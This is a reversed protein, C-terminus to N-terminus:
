PFGQLEHQPRGNTHPDCVHLNDLKFKCICSCNVPPICFQHMLNPLSRAKYLFLASRALSEMPICIDFSRRRRLFAITLFWLKSPCRFSPPTIFGRELVDDCTLVQLYRAACASHILVLYM